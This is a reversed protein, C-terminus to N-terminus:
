PIIRGIKIVFFVYIETHSTVTFLTVIILFLLCKDILIFTKMPTDYENEGM